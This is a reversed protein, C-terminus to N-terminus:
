IRKYKDKIRVIDSEDILEGYQIEALVAHSSSDNVISHKVESKIFIYEGASVDSKVGDIEVNISGDMLVWHEDRKKHFQYSIEEGPNIVLKKLCANSNVYFIKYYGWPKSVLSNPFNEQKVTNIINNVLDSSSNEKIGGEDFKLEINNKICIEYEPIDKFDKRDGGNLFYKINYKGLKIINEISKSVTNDQDSSLIVNDVYKISEIIKKRELIDMFFYGKKNLLFQNSNLIVLVKGLNHAQKLMTLHGSHIPDFGGSVIVYEENSMQNM